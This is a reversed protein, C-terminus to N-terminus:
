DCNQKDDIIKRLEKIYIDYEETIDNKKLSSYLKAKFKKLKNKIDKKGSNLSIWDEIISCNNNDVKLAEETLEISYENESAYDKAIKIIKDNKIFDELTVVKNNTLDSYTIWNGDYRNEIFSEKMQLATEDGDSIIYYKKSLLGWFEAYQNAKTIGSLHTIGVNKFTSDKKSVILEFVLQDTWGEFVINKENIVSYVNMGLARYLTAVDMYNHENALEINSSENKKKIIIHRDINGNDIMDTSHTSYIVYNNKGINILENKLYEQGPIDIKSDPEDILILTNNLYNNKNDISLMLLFTVIRKFGDSRKSASYTNRSDKIRIKIKNEVEQLVIKADKPMSKWVKKLYNDVSDSIDDLLNQFSSEGMEKKDNYEEKINKINCLEFMNKLPVCIDTNNIFEEIIVESPLLYKDDYEWYLVKPIEFKKINIIEVAKAQIFDYLEKIDLNEDFDYDKSSFISFSEIEITTDDSKKHISKKNTNNANIIIYGDNLTFDESANYTYYLIKRSNDRINVRYVFRNNIFDILSIKKENKMIVNDLEKSIKLLEQAVQEKEKQTLVLEFDIEAKDTKRTGEKVFTKDVVISSDLTRLATLLNTKGSESLGVLIKCDKDLDLEIKEISKFNKIDVNRLEM